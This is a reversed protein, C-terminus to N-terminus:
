AAGARVPVALRARVQEYVQIGAEVAVEFSVALAYPLPDALAGASARCSVRLLLYGDDVFM